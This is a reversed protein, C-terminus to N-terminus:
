TGADFEKPYIGWFLFPQTMSIIKMKFKKKKKPAVM